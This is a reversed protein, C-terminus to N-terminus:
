SLVCTFREEYRTPDTRLPQRLGTSVFGLKQYLAYAAENGDLVWLWARRVGRARLHRLMEGVLRTAVGSRRVAPAVWLYSLYRDGPDVDTGTTAGLVALVTDAASVCVLWDGTEFQRWWTEHGYGAETEYASLFAGPSERLADLRVDRLLPWESPSLFRFSM